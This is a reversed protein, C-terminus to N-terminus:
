GAPPRSFQKLALLAVTGKHSSWRFTLTLAGSSPSYSGVPGKSLETAGYPQGRRYTGNSQKSGQNRGGRGGGSRGAGVGPGGARSARGARGGGKGRAKYGGAPQPRCKIFTNTPRAPRSTGTDTHTREGLLAVLLGTFCEPSPVPPRDLFRLFCFSRDIVRSLKPPYLFICTM